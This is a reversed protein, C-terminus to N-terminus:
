NNKKAFQSIFQEFEAFQQESQAASKPIYVFTNDKLTIMIVNNSHKVSKIKNYRVKLLSKDTVLTVHDDFYKQHMNKPTFKNISKTVGFSKFIVIIYVLTMITGFIGAFRLIVTLFEIPATFTFCFVTIAVCIMIRIILRSLTSHRSLAIVDKQEMLFDFEYCPEAEEKSPSSVEGPFEAKDPVNMVAFRIYIGPDHQLFSTIQFATDKNFFRAPIYSFRGNQHIIYIGDALERIKPIEEFSMSTHSISNIIEIRDEYFCMKAALDIEGAERFVEIKKSISRKSRLPQIILTWILGAIVIAFTSICSLLESKDPRSLIVLFILMVLPVLLLIAAKFSSKKKGNSAILNFYNNFSTKYDQETLQYNIEGVLNSQNQEM